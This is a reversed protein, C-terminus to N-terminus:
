RSMLQKAIIVLDAFKFCNLRPSFTPLISRNPNPVRYKSTVTKSVEAKTFSYIWATHERPYGESSRRWWPNLWRRSQFTIDEVVYWSALAKLGYNPTWSALTDGVNIFWDVIFSFPVLEWFSEIPQTLGWTNLSNLQELQALVGARILVKRQWSEELTYGRTRDSFYTGTYTKVYPEASFDDDEYFVTGRYTQRQAFEAATQTLAGLTGRADYMLPRLAYRLEMYRDSLQKPTLEMGIGHADLRKIKKIIKILRKFIAALSLVTKEAEGVMVLGQVFNTDVNAWARTVARAIDDDLSYSPIQPLSDFDGLMLSSPQTGSSVDSYYQWGAPNCGSNWYRRSDEFHYNVLRDVTVTRVYDMPNNVIMGKSQKKRFEPTVIDHMVANDGHEIYTGSAISSMTPTTSQQNCAYGLYGYQKDYNVEPGDQNKTRERM